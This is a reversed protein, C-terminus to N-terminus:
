WKGAQYCARCKCTNSTRDHFWYDKTKQGCIICEPLQKPTNQDDSYINSSSRDAKSPTIKDSGFNERAADRSGLRFRRPLKTAVPQDTEGFRVVTRAPSQLIEYEIPHMFEGTSLSVMVEWFVDRRSVGRFLQPSHYLHLNRYTILLNTQPDLYHLSKGPKDHQNHLQRDIYTEIMFARETTTLYLHDQRLPDINLLDSSFLYTVHASVDSLGSAVMERIRPSKRTEFIWYAFIHKGTTVWCDVHRPLHAHKLQKELSVSQSGFKQVLWEYLTARTHLLIPPENEYLCNELHKHAFHWRRYRGARVRVPQECYPCVLMDQRDLALLISLRERWHPDLIVVEAGDLKNLAKFM